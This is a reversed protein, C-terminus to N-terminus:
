KWIYGRFVLLDIDSIFGFCFFYLSYLVFYEWLWIIIVGLIEYLCFVVYWGLVSFLFENYLISFFIRNM